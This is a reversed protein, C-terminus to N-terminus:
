LTRLSGSLRVYIERSMDSFSRRGHLYRTNDVMLVDHPQWPVPMTTEAEVQRLEAMVSEPIPTGDELRVIRNRVGQAEWWTMTLINNIFVRRGGFRSERFATSVYETAVSRDQENWRFSMDNTDCYQRVAELDDTQFLEQWRGDAYTCVYRIRHEEFLARTGRSLRDYIAAGDAVTTEGGADAPRVCYFWLIGPPHKVYYMEGHLPIAFSHTPETVTMVTPDGDVKRRASAGGEYTMFAECLRESFEKFSATSMWFGRFLVLSQAAFTRAVEGADLSQIGDSTTAPSVVVGHTGLFSGLAATM